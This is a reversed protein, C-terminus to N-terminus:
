YQEAAASSCSVCWCGAMHVVFDGTQWHIGGHRLRLIENWWQWDATKQEKSSLGKWLGYETGPATMPPSGDETLLLPFFRGGSAKIDERYEDMAEETTQDRVEITKGRKDVVEVQPTVPHWNSPPLPIEWGLNEVPGYQYGDVVRVLENLDTDWEGSAPALAAQAVPCSSPPYSNLMRQPALAVREMLKPHHSFIHSMADQECYDFSGFLPDLLLDILTRGEPTNRILFSGANLCNCDPAIVFNTANDSFPGPLLGLPALIHEEVSKDPTMIM